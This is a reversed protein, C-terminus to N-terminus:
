CRPPPSTIHGLLSDYFSVPDSHSFKLWDVWFFTYYDASITHYSGSFNKLLDIMNQVPDVPKKDYNKSVQGAM